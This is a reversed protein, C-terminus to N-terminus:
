WLTRIFVATDEAHLLESALPTLIHELMTRDKSLMINTVRRLRYCTLQEACLCFIDLSVAARPAPTNKLYTEFDAKGVMYGHGDSIAVDDQPNKM